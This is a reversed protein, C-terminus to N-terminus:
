KGAPKVTVHYEGPFASKAGDIRAGVLKFKRTSPPLLFYVFGADEYVCPYLTQDIKACVNFGLGDVSAALGVTDRYVAFDEVGQQNRVAVDWDQFFDKLSKRLMKRRPAELESHHDVYWSRLDEDIPFRVFQTQSGTLIQIELADGSASFQTEVVQSKLRERNSEFHELVNTLIDNPVDILSSDISRPELAEAEIFSAVRDGTLRPQQLIYLWAIGGVLVVGCLIPFWLGSKTGRSRRKVRSAMSTSPPIVPPVGVPHDSTPPGPFSVPPQPEGSFVRSPAEAAAGEVPGAQAPIFPVPLEDTPPAPIVPEPDAPLEVPPAIQPVLLKTQCTPCSGKAGAAADPVRIAVGCAPCNFEIAM